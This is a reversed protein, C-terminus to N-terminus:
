SIGLGTMSVELSNFLLSTRFPNKLNPETETRNQSFGRTQNPKPKVKTQFLVTPETKKTSWNYFVFFTYATKRTHANQPKELDEIPRLHM